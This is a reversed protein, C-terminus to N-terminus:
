NLCLIEPKKVGALRDKIAEILEGRRAAFEGYRCYWAFRKSCPSGHWKSPKDTALAFVPTRTAASLHMHMTEVTVLADAQEYWGAFDAVHPLLVDSLLMIQHQPFESKLLAYMEQKYLFPSSQSHDAFLITPRKFPARPEWRIHLPLTDYLPLLGAREYADLVFSSTRHEIDFKEGYTALCITSNFKQKALKLAGSLDSWHGEYIVRYAYDVRDLIDSYQKSVMMTPKKKNLISWHHVIPLVNLVDGTKGLCILCTEM